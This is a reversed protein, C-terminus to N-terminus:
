SLNPDRGNYNSIHTKSEHPNLRVVLMVARRCGHMETLKGIILSSLSKEEFQVLNRGMLKTVLKCTLVFGVMM